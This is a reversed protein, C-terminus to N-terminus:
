AALRRRDALGQLPDCGFPAFGCVEEITGALTATGLLGRMQLKGVRRLLREIPPGGSCILWHRDKGRRVVQSLEARARWRKWIAGIITTDGEFRLSDPAEWLGLRLMRPLTCRDSQRMGVVGCVGSRVLSSQRDISLRSALVTSVRTGSEEPQSPEIVGLEHRFRSGAIWAPLPSVAVDQVFWTAVLRQTEFLEFLRAITEAPMPGTDVSLMLRGVNQQRWTSLKATRM